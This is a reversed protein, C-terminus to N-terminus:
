GAGPLVLADPQPVYSGAILQAFPMEVALGAGQSKGRVAPMEQDTVAVARDIKQPEFRRFDLQILNVHYRFLDANRKSLRWRRPLIAAKGWVRTAGPQVKIAVVLM